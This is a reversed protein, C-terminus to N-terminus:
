KKFAIVLHVGAAISKIKFDNFNIKKLYKEDLQMFMYYKPTTEFKKNKFKNKKIFQEANKKSYIKKDFIVSQIKYDNTKIGRGTTLGLEIDREHDVSSLSSCSSYSSSSNNNQPQHPQHPQQTQHARPPENYPQIRNNRPQHPRPLENDPQNNEPQVRNNDPEHRKGTIRDLGTKEYYSYPRLLPEEEVAIQEGRIM